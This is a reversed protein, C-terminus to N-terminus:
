WGRRLYQQMRVIERSQATIIARALARLPPHAARRVAERAMRIAMRHHEIMMHLYMTDVAAGGVLARMEKSTMMGGAMMGGAMMGGAMTGTAPRAKSYWQGRWSRMTGIQASASRIIERALRRVEPRRSQIAMMRTSAIAGEHHLTMADIFRLDYARTSGTPRMAGDTKMSGSQGRMMSQPKGRMMSGSGRSGGSAIGYAIGGGLLVSVALLAALLGMRQGVRVRKM